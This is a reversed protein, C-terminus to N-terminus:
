NLDIGHEEIYADLFNGSDKAKNAKIEDKLKKTTAEDAGEYERIMNAEGLQAVLKTLDQVAKLIKANIVNNLDAAQKLTTATDIQSTIDKIEEYTEKMGEQTTQAENLAKKIIRQRAHYKNITTELQRSQFETLSSNPNRKRPDQFIFDTVDKASVWAEGDDSVLMEDAFEVIAMSDNEMAEQAKQLKSVTKAAYNYTGEIMSRLKTAEKYQEKAQSLIKTQKEISEQAALLEQQAVKIQEVYYTYSTIDTTLMVNAMSKTTPVFLVLALLIVAIKKVNITFIQSTM